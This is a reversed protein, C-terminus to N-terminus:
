CAHRQRSYGTQAFARQISEYNQPTLQLELTEGPTIVRNPSLRLSWAFPPRKDGPERRFILSINLSIVAKDHDNSVMLSLGDLWDDEDEFSKDLEIEVKNKTKVGTIKVPEIPWPRKVVIRSKEISFASAALGGTLFLSIAVL